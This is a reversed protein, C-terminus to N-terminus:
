QRQGCQIDGANTRPRHQAVFTVRRLAAHIMFMNRHQAHVRLQQLKAESGQIVVTRFWYVTFHISRGCTTRGHAGVEDRSAFCFCREDAVIPTRRVSRRSSVDFVAILALSM